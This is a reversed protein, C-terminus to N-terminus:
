KSKLYQIANFTLKEIQGQHPNVADNQNWEYGGIGITIASGQYEGVPMMEGIAIMFYDRVHGWAGLMKVGFTNQLYPIFTDDGNSFGHPAPVDTWNCNHDEKWGPGILPFEKGNNGTNNMVMDKYIPHGSYDYAKLNTSVTWVDPNSGGLGDGIAKGASFGQPIRGLHELYMTAHISLLLNGGAKYFDNIANIVAPQKSIAPLDKGGVEDSHWWIVRFQSLDVTNDLIQQFTIYESNTVNEAFWHAAAIEDDDIISGINPYVSLFAIKTPGVRFQEYQTHSGLNQSNTTVFKFKYNALALGVLKLSTENGNLERFDSFEPSNWEVRIKNLTENTPLSWSVFVTDEEQVFRINSVNSAGSRNFRVTNGLSYNGLTDRLKVTFTYDTNTKIIGYKLSTQAGPLVFIGESHRVIATLGANLNPNTWNVQVSDNDAFYSFSLNEVSLLASPKVDEIDRKYCSTALFLFALVFVILSRM